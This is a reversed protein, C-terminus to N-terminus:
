QFNLRCKTRIKLVSGFKKVLNPLWIIQLKRSIIHIQFKCQRHLQDIIKDVQNCSKKQLHIRNQLNQVARKGFKYRWFTLKIAQKLKSMEVLLNSVNYSTGSFTVHACEHRWRAVGKILHYGSHLNGVSVMDLYKGITHLSSYNRTACACIKLMPHSFTEVSCKIM